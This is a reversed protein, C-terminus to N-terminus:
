IFGTNLSVTCRINISCKSIHELHVITKSICEHLFVPNYKVPFLSTKPIELDMGDVV